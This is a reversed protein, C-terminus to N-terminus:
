EYTECIHERIMYKTIKKLTKGTEPHLGLDTFYELRGKINKGYWINESGDDKFFVTNCNAEIQKFNSIREEKYLKLENFDYKNLDFDVVEYHDEKWIMWNPEKKINIKLIIITTIIVALIAIKFLVSNMASTKSNSTFIEKNKPKVVAKTKHNNESLYNAGINETLTKKVNIDKHLQTKYYVNYPRPRFDIIIAILEIAYQEQIKHTEKKLFKCIPRFLDTDHKKIKTLLDDDNKARFYKAITKIDEAQLNEDIIKICIKKLNGPTLKRLDGRLLGYKKDNEYKQRVDTEYSKETKVTKM